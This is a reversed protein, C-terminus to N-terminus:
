LDSARDLFSVITELVNAFDVDLSDSHDGEDNEGLLSVNYRRTNYAFLRVVTEETPFWCLGIQSLTPVHAALAPSQRLAPVIALLGQANAHTMHQPVHGYDPEADIQEQLYSSYRQCREIIDDWTTGLLTEGTLNLRRGTFM